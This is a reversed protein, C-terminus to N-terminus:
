EENTTCEGATPSHRCRVRKMVKLARSDYLGDNMLSIRSQRMFESYEEHREAPISVWYRQPIAQEAEHVRALMEDFQSHVHNRLQQGFTEPFQEANIVIQMSTHLLPFSLIGGNPEIGRYLEMTEFAVAPAFIIDVGGNNFYGAFSSLSAGVVSGGVRRVMNVAVPDNDFVAMKKGQFEEVSDVSRDRVYIFVSGIPLIGAIEYKGDKMLQAASPQALTDLLTRLETSTPIAGVAGLTGTFRNFERASVETLLVADCKGAKFDNAAIKEDTYARINLSAGWELAKPKVGQVMTVVPGGSGIPDWVCFERTAVEAGAVLPLGALGCLLLSASLRLRTLASFAFM